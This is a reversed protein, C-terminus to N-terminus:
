FQEIQKILSCKETETFIIEATHEQYQSGILTHM